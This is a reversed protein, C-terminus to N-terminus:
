NPMPTNKTEKKRAVRAVHAISLASYEAKSDMNFEVITDYKVIFVSVSYLSVHPRCKHNPPMVRQYLYV